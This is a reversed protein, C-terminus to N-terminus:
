VVNFVKRFHFGYIALAIATPFLRPRRLLTGFFLRWYYVRGKEVIGLVFISRLFAITDSLSFRFRGTSPRFDMLFKEIRTYYQKPAYITGVISRYGEILTALQMKPVFNTSCDTNDGSSRSLLRKEQELRRYLRTGKIASLLGVMAVVIGSDQIFSIQREFISPPDNDFGVIFGAQVQLGYGQIKKVCSVLDRSTNARKDCEALSDENPTEIGVFVNHFKADRMMRMLTEDDSLNVSAQTTFDFPWRRERGWATVAPLIDKKLKGRNGIFNDDVFFVAGRWGLAHIADLEAIVQAAGKTRLRNGYLVSIDCFECDFPCGRSYQLSMSAYRNVNILDWLPIPTKRVEARQDSRYIHRATGDRLDNLFGPLTVEAENLVLHDVHDFDDSSSTFLPGGAVVKVGADRCRAIVSGVSGRQESMASLLVLDAWQLDKEKLPSLNMDILRKEWEPPLMSAVTLLGLPPQNSRKFLSFNLAHKMSWFTDAHQPYVLLARM